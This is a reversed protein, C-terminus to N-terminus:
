KLKFDDEDLLEREREREKAAEEEEEAKASKLLPTVDFNPVPVTLWIPYERQAPPVAEDYAPSNHFDELQKLLEEPLAKIAEKRLFLKTSLDNDQIARSQSMKSNFKAGIVANQKRVEEPARPVLGKRFFM